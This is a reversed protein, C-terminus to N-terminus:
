AGEKARARVASDILLAVAGSPSRALWYLTDLLMLEDRPLQARLRAVEPELTDVKGWATLRYRGSM